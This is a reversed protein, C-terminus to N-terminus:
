LRGHVLARYFAFREGPEGIYAWPDDTVRDGLHDFLRRGSAVVYAWSFALAFVNACEVGGLDDVFEPHFVSRAAADDLETIVERRSFYSRPRLGPTDHVLRLVHEIHAMPVVLRAPSGAPATDTVWRAFAFMEEASGHWKACLNQLHGAVAGLHFPVREIAEHFRRDLEARDLQLGRGSRLGLVWPTADAPALDAARRLQTEAEGLVAFFSPWADEDVSSADGRGRIQWAYGVLSAASALWAAPDEAHSDILGDAWGPRGPEDLIMGVLHNRVTPDPTAGLVGVVAAGDDRRVADALAAAAPHGLTPDVTVPTWGRERPVRWGSVAARAAEIIGDLFPM